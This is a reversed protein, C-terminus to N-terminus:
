WSSLRHSSAAEAMGADMVVDFVGLGRCGSSGRPAMWSLFLRESRNLSSGLRLWVTLPRVIVLLGLLAWRAWCQLASFTALELRASLVIFLTSIMLVVLNEKFELVHRVDVQKQNALIVGMLTTALLGSEHQFHNSLTFASVAVM